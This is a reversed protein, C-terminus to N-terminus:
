VILSENYCPEEEVQVNLHSIGYKSKLIETAKDRILDAKKTSMPNVRLHCEMFIEEGDLSWAHVHHFSVVDTISEIDEKMQFFNIDNPVGEMLINISSSIVKFSEYSIYAIIGFTVLADLFYWRYMGILIGVIVVAASDMSDSLMHIFAAKVNLDNHSHGHLFLAGILNGAFAISAVWIIIDGNIMEPHLLRMVAEYGLFVFIVLLVISNVLAAIIGARKYGYTKRENRAKKATKHAFLSLVMGGADELNHLSDSILAFSGAIVGFTLEFAVMLFNVIVNLWLAKAANDHKNHCDSM